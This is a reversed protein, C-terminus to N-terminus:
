RVAHVVTTAHPHLHSAFTLLEPDHTSTLYVMAGKPIYKEIISEIRRGLADRRAWTDLSYYGEPAAMAEALEGAVQRHLDSVDIATKRATRTPAGGIILM